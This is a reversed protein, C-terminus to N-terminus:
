CSVCCAGLKQRKAVVWTFQARLFDFDANGVASNTMAIKMENGVVPADALVWEDGTVFDDAGDGCDARLNASEFYSLADSEAPLGVGAALALPAAAPEFIEARILFSGADM